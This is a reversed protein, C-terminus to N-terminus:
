AIKTNYYEQVFKDWQEITNNGYGYKDNFQKHIKSTLCVGLPYNNQKIRFTDLILRLEEDTYDDMTEKSNIKLDNLSYLFRCMRISECKYYKKM